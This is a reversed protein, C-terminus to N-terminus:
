RAYTLDQSPPRAMGYALLGAYVLLSALSAIWAGRAAADIILWGLILTLPQRALELSSMSDALMFAALLASAILAVDLALFNPAGFLPAFALPLFCLLLGTGGQQVKEPIFDAAILMTVLLALAALQLLVTPLHAIEPLVLTSLSLLAVIVPLGFRAVPPLTYHSRSLHAALLLIASVLMAPNANVVMLFVLVPVTLALGAFQHEPRKLLRGLRKGVVSLALAFFWTSLCLILTYTTVM